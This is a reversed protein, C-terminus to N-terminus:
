QRILALVRLISLYLWVLGVTLGLAGYWEMYRPASSHSMQEIFSFDIALSAAAVIAIGISVIIGLPTPNNWFYLNAGFLSAVMAVLYMLLIGAMAGVVALIYGRTVKIIRSAYLFFMVFFVAVTALVAQAVIGKYQQEYLASIAGVVTGYALAYVPGLFRALKPVFSGAIAAIFGVIGAVWIWAPISGGGYGVVQGFTNTIPVMPKVQSWGFGGAVVLLALLVGTATATGAVTMTGKEHGATAWGHGTTQAEQQFTAEKLLPSAM